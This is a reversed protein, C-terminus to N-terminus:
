GVIFKVLFSLEDCLLCYKTPGMCEIQDIQKCEAHFGADSESKDHIAIAPLARAARVWHFPSLSLGIVNGNTKEEEEETM